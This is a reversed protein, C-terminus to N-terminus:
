LPWHDVDRFFNAYYGGEEPPPIEADRVLAIRENSGFCNRREAEQNAATLFRKLAAHVLADGEESLMEFAQPLTYGKSAKIYGDVIAVLIADQVDTEYVPLGMKDIKKLNQLFGLVIENM